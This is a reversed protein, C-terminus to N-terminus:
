WFHGKQHQDTSSLLSPPLFLLSSPPNHTLSSMKNLRKGELGRERGISTKMAESIGELGLTLLELSSAFLGKEVMGFM